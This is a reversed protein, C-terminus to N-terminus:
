GDEGGGPMICYAVIMMPWLSWGCTFLFKNPASEVWDLLKKSILAMAIFGIILYVLYALIIYIISSVVHWFM